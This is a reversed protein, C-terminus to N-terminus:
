ASAKVRVPEGAKRDIQAVLRRGDWIECKTATCGTEALEIAEGDHAAKIFDATVSKQAVDYCYIKYIKPPRSM